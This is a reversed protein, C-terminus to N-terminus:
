RDTKKPKGMVPMRYARLKGEDSLPLVFFDESPDMRFVYAPHGISETKLTLLPKGDVLVKGKQVCLWKEASTRELGYCDALPGESRPSESFNKLSFSVVNGDVLLFLRDLYLFMGMIRKGTWLKEATKNALRYVANGQLVLYIAGNRDVAIDSARVKEPVNPVSARAGKPDVIQISEKGAVWYLKGDFARIPGPEESSSAMGRKEIKGDLSVRDLRGRGNSDKVSVYLAGSAADFFAAM